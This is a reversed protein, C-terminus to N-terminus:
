ILKKERFSKIYDICYDDMGLLAKSTKLAALVKKDLPDLIVADLGAHIAMSLFTHNILSRDPLGFSVNSLGCITKVGLNKILPLAELFEKAQKPETLVPRVLPDIYLDELKLGERKVQELIKKAMEFRDAATEPLGREDMALAIVKAKRRMALPLIKKMRAEEGTISNIILEGKAKYIDLAREIALYNPSDICINADEIESQIVSVAWDIDQVEDGLAQACNVDIYDAGANVQSVAEKLILASNRSKIAAQIQPRTSNIREGIIIM